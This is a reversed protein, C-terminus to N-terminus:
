AASSPGNQAGGDGQREVVAGQLDALLKLLLVEIERLELADVPFESRMEALVVADKGPEAHDPMADLVRGVVLQRRDDRLISCPANCAEQVAEQQGVGQREIAAHQSQRVVMVPQGVDGVVDQGMLQLTDGVAIDLAAISAHAVQCPALGVCNEFLEIGEAPHCSSRPRTRGVRRM